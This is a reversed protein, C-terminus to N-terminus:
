ESESAMPEGTSEGTSTKKKPPYKKNKAENMRASYEKRQEPTQKAWRARGAEALHERLTKEAM